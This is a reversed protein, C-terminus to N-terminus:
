SFLCSGVLIPQRDALAGNKVRLWKQARLGSLQVVMQWSDM